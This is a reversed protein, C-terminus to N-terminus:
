AFCAKQGMERLSITEFKAKQRAKDYQCHSLLCDVCGLCGLSCCLLKFSFGYRMQSLLLILAAFPSRCKRQTFLAFWLEGAPSEHRPRKNRIERGLSESCWKQQQNQGPPCCISSYSRSWPVSALLIMCSNGRPVLPAILIGIDMGVIGYCMGKGGNPMKPGWQAGYLGGWFAGSISNRPIGPYSQSTSGIM